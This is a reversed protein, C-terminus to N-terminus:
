VHTAVTERDYKRKLNPCADDNKTEHTFPKTRKMVETVSLRQVKDGLDDILCLNSHYM